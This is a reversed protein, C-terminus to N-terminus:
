AAAVVARGRLRAGPRGPASRPLRERGCLDGGGAGGDEAALIAAAQPARDAALRPQPPAADHRRPRLRVARLRGDRPVPRARFLTTYPFLTSRPPRRIMLFLFFAFCSICAGVSGDGVNMSM